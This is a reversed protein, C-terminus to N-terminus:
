QKRSEILLKLLEIRQVATLPLHDFVWENEASSLTETQDIVPEVVVENTDKADDM